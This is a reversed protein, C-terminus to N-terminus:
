APVSRTGPEPEAAKAGGFMKQEVAACIAHYTVLHVEQIRPTEGAIAAMLIDCHAALKGGGPGTLGIVTLGNRRACECGLVVNMSNGSTSIAWVVDGPKGLTQVQREFITEFSKDNAWATLLAPNCALAIAPLGPRDFNFRGALEGCIHQADAASGGNGFVLLKGGRHFTQTLLQIAEGMRSLYEENCAALLNASSEEFIHRIKEEGSRLTEIRSEGSPVV